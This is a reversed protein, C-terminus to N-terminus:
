MMNKQHCFLISCWEGLSGPPIIGAGGIGPAAMAKEVEIHALNQMEAKDGVDRHPDKSTEVMPSADMGPRSEYRLMSPDEDENEEMVPDLKKRHVRQQSQPNQERQCNVQQQQQQQLPRFTGDKDVTQMYYKMGPSQPIIQQQQIPQHHQAVEGGESRRPVVPTPQLITNGHLGGVRMSGREIPVDVPRHIVTGPPPPYTSYSDFVDIGQQQHPTPVSTTFSSYSGGTPPTQGVIGFANAAGGSTKGIIPTTSAHRYVVSGTTTTTTPTGMFQM